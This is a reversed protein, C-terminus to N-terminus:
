HSLRSTTVYAKGYTENPPAACCDPQSLKPNAQELCSVREGEQGPESKDRNAPDDDNVPTNM